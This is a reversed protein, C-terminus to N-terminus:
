LQFSEQCDKQLRVEAIEQLSPMVGLPFTLGFPPQSQLSPRWLGQYGESLKPSESAPLNPRTEIWCSANILVKPPLIRKLRSGSELPNVYELSWCYSPASHRKKLQNSQFEQCSIPM